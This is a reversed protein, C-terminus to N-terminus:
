SPFPKTSMILFFPHLPYHLSHSTPFTLCLAPVAAPFPFLSVPCCNHLIHALLPVRKHLQSIICCIRVSTSGNCHLPLFSHDRSGNSIIAHCFTSLLSLSLVELICHFPKDEVSPLLSQEICPLSHWHCDSLRIRSKAVVHITAQWAGRDMSNELSSYQLPNGNGEGCYFPLPSFDLDLPTSPTSFSAIRTLISRSEWFLM